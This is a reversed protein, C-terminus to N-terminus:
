LFNTNIFIIEKKSNIIMIKMNKIQSKIFKYNLDM